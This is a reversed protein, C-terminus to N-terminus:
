SGPPAYSIGLQGKLQLASMGNSHTTMLHAAWFWVALTLKTRHMVTGATVSTQRGCDLCEYTWARSKLMVARGKGRRPCVFGEPWRGEFLFRACAAEDPFRKQFALLSPQPKRKKAM